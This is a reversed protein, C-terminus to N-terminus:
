RWSTATAEPRANGGRRAPAEEQRSGRGAAPANADMDRERGESPWPMPSRLWCKASNRAPPTRTSQTSAILSFKKPGPPRGRATSSFTRPSIGTTSCPTESEM